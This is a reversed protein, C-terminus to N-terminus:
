EQKAAAVAKRSVVYMEKTVGNQEHMSKFKDYEIGYKVDDNSAVPDPKGHIEGIPPRQSCLVDFLRNKVDQPAVDAEIFADAAEPTGAMKCLARIESSRVREEAKAAKQIAAVDIPTQTPQSININTVTGPTSTATTALVAAETTVPVSLSPTAPAVAAPVAAVPAPVVPAPIAVPTVPSEVPPVPDPVVAMVPEKSFNGLAKSAWTPVNKFVKIDVHASVSTNPTIDTAFGKAKATEANFWTEAMVLTSVEEGSLGTRDSYTKILSSNVTELMTADRRLELATGGSYVRGEHIMMLANEAMSISDGAMAVVSAASLAIGDIHVAITAPHMKLANYMALAEWCSGGPSNIRVDIQTVDKMAAISEVFGKADVLDAWAPGIM